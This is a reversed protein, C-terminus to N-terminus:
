SIANVEPNVRTVVPAAPAAPVTGAAAAADNVVAQAAAVDVSKNETGCQECVWVTKGDNTTVAHCNNCSVQSQDM